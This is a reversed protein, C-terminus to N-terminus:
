IRGDKKGTNSVMSDPKIGRLAREIGALRKSEDALAKEYEKLEKAHEANRQDMAQMFTKVILILAKGQDMGGLEVSEDKHVIISAGWPSTFSFHIDMSLPPLGLHVLDGSISAASSFCVLMPPCPPDAPKQPIGGTARAPAFTPRPMVQASAIGCFIAIALISKM